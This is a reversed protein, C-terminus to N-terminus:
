VLLGLLGYLVPLTLVCFVTTGLTFAVANEADGDYQDAFTSALGATPMAFAIFAGIVMYKDLSFMIAVILAPMILLKVASVWYTSGKAFISRLKVSAMKIGLITMSLATVLNSFHSAYKSVEPVYKNINVLNLIIGVIFAILVPNLFAKLLNMSKRDGSVLYVGLTYM